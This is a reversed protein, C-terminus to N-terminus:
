ISIQLMILPSADSAAATEDIIFGALQHGDVAGSLAVAGNVSGDGVFYVTREGISDGISDWDSGPNCQCPGWSQGWFYRGSTVNNNPVVMTSQYDYGTQAHALYNYPNLFIECYPDSDALTIPADLYVRIAVADGGTNATIGRMQVSPHHSVFYGGILENEAVEGDVAYGDSAGLTITIFQDGVAIAAADQAINMVNSSNKAGKGGICANRSYGYKFVRGDWTTYRTGPIYRQTAEEACHKLLYDGSYDHPSGPWDIPNNPKMNTLTGM